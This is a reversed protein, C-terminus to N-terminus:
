GKTKGPRGGGGLGLGTRESCFGFPRAGDVGTISFPPSPVRKPENVPAKNESYDATGKVNQINCSIPLINHGADKKNARQTYLGQAITNQDLSSLSRFLIKSASGRGDFIRHGCV